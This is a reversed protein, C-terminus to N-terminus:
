RRRALEREREIAPELLQIRQDRLYRGFDRQFTDLLQLFAHCTECPGAPSLHTKAVDGIEALADALADQQRVVIKIRAAIMGAHCPSIVTKHPLRQVIPFVVHEEHESLACFNSWFLRVQVPLARLEPVQSNCRAVDAAAEELAAVKRLLRGQVRILTQCIEEMDSIWEGGAVRRGQESGFTM